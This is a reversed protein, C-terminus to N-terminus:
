CRACDAINPVILFMSVLDPQSFDGEDASSEKPDGAATNEAEDTGGV